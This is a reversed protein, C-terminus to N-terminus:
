APRWPSASVAPPRIWDVPWRRPRALRSRDPVPYGFPPRQGTRHTPARRVIAADLCSTARRDVRPIRWHRSAQDIQGEVGQFIQGPGAPLADEPLEVRHGGLPGAGGAVRAQLLLGPDRLRQQLPAGAALEDVDVAHRGAEHHVGRRRVHGRDIANGVEGTEASATSSIVACTTAANAPPPSPRISTCPTARSRVLRPMLAISANPSAFNPSASSSSGAAADRRGVEEERDAELGYPRMRAVRPQAQLQTRATTSTRRPTRAPSAARSSSGPSGAGGPGGAAAGVGGGASAVPRPRAAPWRTAAIPPLSRACSRPRRDLRDARGARGPLVDAAGGGRDGRGGSRPVHPDILRARDVPSTLYGVDVRVAPM